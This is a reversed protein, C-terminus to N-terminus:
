MVIVKMFTKGLCSGDGPKHGKSCLCSLNDGCRLPISNLACIDDSAEVM